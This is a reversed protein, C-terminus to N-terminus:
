QKGNHYHTPVPVSKGARMKPCTITVAGVTVQFIPCKRKTYSETSTRVRDPILCSMRLPKWSTPADADAVMGEAWLINVYKNEGEFILMVNAVKM